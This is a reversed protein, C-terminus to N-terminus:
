KRAQKMWVRSRGKQLTDKDICREHLYMSEYYCFFSKFDIM